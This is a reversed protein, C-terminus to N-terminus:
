IVKAIVFMFVILVVQITYIKKAYEVYETQKEVENSKIVRQRFHRLMETSFIFLTVLIMLVVEFHVAKIIGLMVGGTYLISFNFSHHLIMNRKLLKALRIFNKEKHLIYYNYLIVGIFIYILGEHTLLTYKTLLAWNAEEANNM